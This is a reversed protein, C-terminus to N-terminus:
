LSGLESVSKLGEDTVTTEDLFLANLRPMGKLHSLGKDSINTKTLILAELAPLSPLRKFGEDSVSSGALVLIALDKISKLCDLDADKISKNQLNVRNISRASGSRVVEVSGGLQRIKSVAFDYETKDKQSPVIVTLAALTLILGNMSPEGSHHHIMGGM